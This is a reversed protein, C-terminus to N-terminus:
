SKNWKLRTAEIGGKRAAEPTPRQGLAKKTASIKAGHGKPKGKQSMSRALNAEASWRRGPSSRLMAERAKDLSEDTSNFSIIHENYLKGLVRYHEMWGLEAERKHELSADEALEEISAIDFASDGYRHWDEIMRKSTHRKSKLLSRHERLRKALKYKTCGVYAFGNAYCTVAYIVVM